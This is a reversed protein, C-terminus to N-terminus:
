PPPTPAVPWDEIVVGHDRAAAAIRNFTETLDGWAPVCWHLCGRPYSRMCVHRFNLWDRALHALDEARPDPDLEPDYTIAMLAVLDGDAGLCARARDELSTPLETASFILKAVSDLSLVRTQAAFREYGERKSPGCAGLWMLFSLAVCRVVRRSMTQRPYM